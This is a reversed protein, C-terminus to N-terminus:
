RRENYRGGLDGLKSIMIVSFIIIALINFSFIMFIFSVILIVNWHENLKWFEKLNM